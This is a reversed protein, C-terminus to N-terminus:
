LNEEFFFASHRFGRLLDDVSRFVLTVVTSDFTADAFPLNESVQTLLIPGVM